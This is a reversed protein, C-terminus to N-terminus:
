CISRRISEPASSMTVFQNMVVLGDVFKVIRWCVGPEDHLVIFTGTSLHARYDHVIHYMTLDRYSPELATMKIMEM